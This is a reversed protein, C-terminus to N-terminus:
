ADRSRRAGLAYLLAFSAVFLLVSAAVARGIAGQRFFAEYIYISMSTTSGGPGSGVLVYVNDFVRFGDIFRIFAAVAITPAMLPLEVHRLLALPAAGDMRAAERLQAPIAAYAMHFLLFAFPTWQLCEVVVLTRFAAAGGLFSPRLGFLEWAYYPVPGVFEHLVLRYMLGVLAPAVMLPAMLFATLWPRAALLPALFIALGLGVAVQIAACIAGFRLSFWAARWFAPDGLAEAYNGLGALRPSRLTEFSVESVSYVLNVLTPLGLFALLFVIMPVALLGREARSRVM